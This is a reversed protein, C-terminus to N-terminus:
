KDEKESEEGEDPKEPKEPENDEDKKAPKKLGEVLDKISQAAEYASKTNKLRVNLNKVEEDSMKNIKKLAADADFDKKEEGEGKLTKMLAKVSPKQTIQYATEATDALEKASDVFKKIKQMKTTKGEAAKDGLQKEVNIRDMRERLEATSLLHRNKYIEEANTSKLVRARIQEDTEKKEEKDDVGRRKKGLKTLSGDKNQYRRVGWRQGKVGHHVLYTQEM